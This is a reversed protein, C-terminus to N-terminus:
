SFDKKFKLINNKLQNYSYCYTPSGFQKIIQDVSKKDIFLQNAEKESVIGCQRSEMLQRLDGHTGIELVLYMRRRSDFTEYLRLINEHKLMSMIAVEAEVESMSTVRAKDIAM